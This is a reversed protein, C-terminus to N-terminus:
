TSCLNTRCFTIPRAASTTLIAIRNASNNPTLVRTRHTTTASTVEWHNEETTMTTTECRYTGAMRNEARCISQLM